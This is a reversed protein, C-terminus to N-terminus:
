SNLYFIFRTKGDIMQIERIGDTETVLTSNFRCFRLLKVSKRVAFM